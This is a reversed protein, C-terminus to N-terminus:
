TGPTIAAAPSMSTWTATATPMSCCPAPTRTTPMKTRVLSDTATRIQRGVAPASNCRGSWLGWRLLRRGTRQRRRRWHDPGPGMMSVKNPLLPQVAMDDFPDEEHKFDLGLDAASVAVLPTPEVPGQDDPLQMDAETVRYHRGALLNTFQQTRGSPWYITLTDITTAHGLGFHTVPEAGSAYGRASTVFRTQKVNGAELVIRAGLGHSNSKGGRLSVLVRSGETTNNRYLSAEALQNNVVLDLDGDRDLDAMVAGHSISEEGLGWESSVDKFRLGGKNCFCLNKERMIPQNREYEVVEERSASKRIMRTLQENRDADQFNRILGNTFFVDERGDLDLDGCLVAWTWNTSALHSFRATELFRGTGTNIHVFNRMAQRPEATDLLWGIDNMDGMNVKSKFHTTFSMDATILDLRGDNNLDGQDAGMSFMATAALREGSREVFKGGENCYFRDPSTFDNSVYLDPWRDNDADFWTAALGMGLDPAIGSEAGALQFEYPGDALTGSNVLLHDSTGLEVVYRGHVLAIDRDYAPDLTHTGDPLKVLQLAKNHFKRKGASFGTVLCIPTM